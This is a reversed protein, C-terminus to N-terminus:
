VGIAPFVDPKWECNTSLDPNQYMSESMSYEDVLWHWTHEVYNPSKSSALHVMHHLERSALYVMNHLERVRIQFLFLSLLYPAM